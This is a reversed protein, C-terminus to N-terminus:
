VSSIGVGLACGLSVVTLSPSIFVSEIHVFYINTTSSIFLIEEVGASCHLILSAFALSTITPSSKFIFTWLSWNRWCCFYCWGYCVHHSFYVKCDLSLLVCNCWRDWREGFCSMLESSDFIFFNHFIINKHSIIQRWSFTTQEINYYKETYSCM